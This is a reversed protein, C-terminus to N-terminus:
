RPAVFHNSSSRFADSAAGDPPVLPKSRWLNAVADESAPFEVILIVIAVIRRPTEDKGPADLRKEPERAKERASSAGRHGM